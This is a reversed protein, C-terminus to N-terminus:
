FFFSCQTLPPVSSTDPRTSIGRRNWVTTWYESSICARPHDDLSVSTNCSMFAAVLIQYCLKTPAHLLAIRRAGGTLLSEHLIAREPTHCRRQKEVVATSM